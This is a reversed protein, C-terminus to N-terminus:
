DRQGPPSVSGKAGPNVCRFCDICHRTESKHLLDIMTPCAGKLSYIDRGPIKVQPEFNVPGLRSYLGLVRGIPCLHRCWARKKRGYIFGAVMATLMTVGFLGAAFAALTGATKGSLRFM